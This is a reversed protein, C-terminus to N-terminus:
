GVPPSNACGIPRPVLLSEGEMAAHLGRVGFFIFAVCNLGDWLTIALFAPYRLSFLYVLLFILATAGKMFVLPYLVPWHRKVDLQLMVCMFGLCLVNTGALIRWLYSVEYLPYYEGGMLSGLRTFGAVAADPHILYGLGPVIFHVALFGYVLQFNRYDTNPQSLFRSIFGM